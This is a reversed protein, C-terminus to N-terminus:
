QVQLQWEKSRLQDNFAGDDDSDYLPGGAGGSTKPAADGGVARGAPSPRSATVNVQAGIVRTAGRVPAWVRGPPVQLDINRKEMMEAFQQFDTYELINGLIRDARPDKDRKLAQECLEVFSEVSVGWEALRTELLGEKLTAYGQPM